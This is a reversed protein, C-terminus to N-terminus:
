NVPSGLAHKWGLHLRVNEGAKRDPAKEMFQLLTVGALIVPGIPSSIQCLDERKAELAPLVERRFLGHSDSPGFLGEALFSV